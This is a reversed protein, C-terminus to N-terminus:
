QAHVIFIAQDFHRYRRTQNHHRRDRENQHHTLVQPHIQSAFRYGLFEGMVNAAVPFL